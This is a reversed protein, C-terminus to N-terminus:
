LLPVGYVRVPETQCDDAAFCYPNNTNVSGVFGDEEFRGEVSKTHTINAAMMISLLKGNVQYAPIINSFHEFEMPSDEFLVRLKKWDGSVWSKASENTPEIILRNVIKDDRVYIFIWKKGIGWSTPTEMSSYKEYEAVAREYEAIDEETFEDESPTACSFLFFPLIIILLYKM